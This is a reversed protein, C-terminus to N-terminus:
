KPQEYFKRIAKRNIKLNQTRFGNELNFEEAVIVTKSIRQYDPLHGNVMEIHKKIIPMAEDESTNINLMAVVGAIGDGGIIVSQEISQCNNLMVEITEPHFKQGNKTVIIDKKRGVLTLFGQEDFEGIDGTAV